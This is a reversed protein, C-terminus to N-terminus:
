RSQQLLRLAGQPTEFLQLAPLELSRLRDENIFVSAGGLLKM